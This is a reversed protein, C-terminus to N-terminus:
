PESLDFSDQVLACVADVHNAMVLASRRYDMSASHLLIEYVLSPLRSLPEQALTQCDRFFYNFAYLRAIEDDDTVRDGNWKVVDIYRNQKLLEKLLLHNPDMKESYDDLTLLRLGKLHKLTQLMEEMLGASYLIGQHVHLGVLSQNAGVARILEWTLSDPVQGVHNVGFGLKVIDAMHAIRRLYSIVFDFHTPEYCSFQLALERPTIEITSWDLELSDMVSVYFKVGKVSASLLQPIERVTAWTRTLELTDIAKARLLRQFVDGQIDQVEGLRLEGFPAKRQLLTEVFTHGGDSFSGLPDETLYISIPYPLGALFKSQVPSINSVTFLFSTTPPPRFLIRLQELSVVGFDFNKGLSRLSRFEEHTDLRWLAAATEAIAHESKGIVTYDLSGSGFSLCKDDEAVRIMHTGGFCCLHQHMLGIAPVTLILTENREEWISWLPFVNTLQHLNHLRPPRRFKYTPLKDKGEYMVNPVQPKLQEEPILELLSENNASM